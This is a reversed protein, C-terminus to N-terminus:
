IRRKLISVYREAWRRLDPRLSPDKLEGRLKDVLTRNSRKRDHKVIRSTRARLHKVFARPIFRFVNEGFQKSLLFATWNDEGYAPAFDEDFLWFGYTKKLWQCWAFPVMWCYASSEQVDHSNKNQARAQVRIAASDTAPVLIKYLKPDSRAAAIATLLGIWNPDPFELDNNFCLVWHPDGGFRVGNDIALNMGFAFGVNEGYDIFHDPDVDLAHEVGQACASVEFDVADPGEPLGCRIADICRSTMQVLEAGGTYCTVALVKM